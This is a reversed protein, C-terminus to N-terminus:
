AKKWDDRKAIPGKDLNLITSTASYNALRKISKHWEKAMRNMDKGHIEEWFTQKYRRM